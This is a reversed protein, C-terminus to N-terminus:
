TRASISPKFYGDFTPGFTSFQSSFGGHGAPINYQGGTKPFSIKIPAKAAFQNVLQVHVTSMLLFSLYYVILPCVFAGDEASILAATYTGVSIPAFIAANNYILTVKGGKAKINDLKQTFSCTGRRVVVVYGSLDPTSAPLPSCADAPAATDTSTAYVPLPDPFPLPTAQLYPIPNHSVGSVTANQIPIVINDVSGVAIVSKGTGPASAYWAGVGGDNGAAITVVRGADAIRSAVVAAAAETWGNVGGLSLSLVDMGDKYGRLLAQIIIDDTASGKCGFLRYAGLEAGYAVGNINYENDPNAGIIGAVHTGHGNCNDDPDNDPVPDNAGNYNDGVFDYGAVVKFGQGFGGGLAPHNYDIGTDIIGIKIGKGIIGQAHVKDVGTMVHTSLRDEPLRPDSPGTPIYSDIKQPMPVLIAPRISKVQPLTAVEAASQM